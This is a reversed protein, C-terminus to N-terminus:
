AHVQSNLQYTNYNLLILWILGFIYSRIKIVLHYKDNDLAILMNM